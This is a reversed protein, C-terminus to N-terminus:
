LIKLTVWQIRCLWLLRLIDLQALGISRMILLIKEPVTKKSTYSDNNYTVITLAEYLVGEKWDNNRVDAGDYDPNLYFKPVYRAGIYQISRDHTANNM